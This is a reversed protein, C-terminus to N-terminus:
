NPAPPTDTPVDTSTPVATDSPIATGTPTHPLTPTASPQPTDSPTTPSPVQTPTRTHAPAPSPTRTPVNPVWMNQGTRILTSSGMCNATQLQRVSVGFALGLSYLTDGYRVVYIVWGPPPGCKIKTPKPQSGLADDTAVDAPTLTATATGARTTASTATEAVTGTPTATGTQTPVALAGDATASPTGAALVTDGALLKPLSLAMETEGIAPELTVDLGTENMVMVISGLVVATSLLVFLIGISAQRVDKM